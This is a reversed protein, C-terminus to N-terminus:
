GVEFVIEVRRDLQYAHEDTGPAALKEKGYSVVVIQRKSVGLAEFQDLVHNARRQGLGINYERSGRPDTHGELRVLAQPHSKLYRTNAQLTAYYDPGVESNDFTFYITNDKKGGSVVAANDDGPMADPFAMDDGLGATQVSGEDYLNVYEEAPPPTLQAMSQGNFNSKHSTCASLGTVLLCGLGIIKTTKFVQM